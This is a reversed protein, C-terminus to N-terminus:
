RHNRSFSKRKKREGGGEKRVGGGRNGPACRHLLDEDDVAVATVLIPSGKDGLVARYAAFRLKTKKRKKRRERGKEWVEFLHDGVGVEDVEITRWGKRKKKKGKGKKGGGRGPTVAEDYDRALRTFMFFQIPAITSAM